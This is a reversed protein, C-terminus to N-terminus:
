RGEKLRVQLEEYAKDVTDDFIGQFGAALLTVLGIVEAENNAQVILAKIAESIKELCETVKEEM